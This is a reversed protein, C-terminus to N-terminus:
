VDYFEEWEDADLEDRDGWPDEPEDDVRDDLPDRLIWNDLDRKFESSDSFRESM